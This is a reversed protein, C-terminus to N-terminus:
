PTGQDPVHKSLAGKVPAPASLFLFSSLLLCRPKVKGPLQSKATVPVLVPSQFGAAWM